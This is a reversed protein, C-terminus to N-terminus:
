REKYAVVGFAEPRREVRAFGADHLRRMAGRAVGGSGKSNLKGIYHFLRGGRRLVRFLQAYFAGSYLEGALSFIPPDHIIRTFSEAPLEPVIDYSDGIRQHIKPNSFLERSWPNDRAIALTTPDLEITVVEIVDKGRAAVLATYGLGTSTDLVRGRLPAVARVKTHTDRMPDTEKIRHMSFGGILLTPAGATPYLSYQRGMAESFQAIRESCAPLGPAAPARVAYCAGERAAITTLEDWPLLTTDPLRLGEAECAVASTTLELDLSVTATVAGAAHAALLQHAQRQALVFLTAPSQAM